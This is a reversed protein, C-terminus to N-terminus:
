KRGQERLLISPNLFISTEEPFTGSEPSETGASHKGINAVVAEIDGIAKRTFGSPTETEPGSPPINRIAEARRVIEDDPNEAFLRKNRAAIVSGVENNSDKTDM